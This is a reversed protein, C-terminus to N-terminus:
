FITKKLKKKQSSSMQYYESEEVKMYEFEETLKYAGKGIVALFQEDFQCKVVSEINKVANVLSGTVGNLGKANEKVYRNLYESVNQMYTVPPFGLGCMSRIDARM